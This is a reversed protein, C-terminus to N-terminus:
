KFVDELTKADLIRESWDLLTEAGANDIKQVYIVPVEGFRRQLLRKLVAAEGQQMGQQMGQHLGQQMGQHLGQQMGEHLGQQMGQQMGQNLGEEKWQYAIVMAEQKGEQKWQQAITMIDGQLEHSLYYQAEQVLLDKNGEPSGDIVYKLVVRGLSTGFAAHQLEVQHVWPLLKKLFQQFDRTKRYKLAFAVLGSLEQQRLKDDSTRKVDQLQYPKFLIERALEEAEAFLPFIDLAANWPEDGTYVVTPYVL